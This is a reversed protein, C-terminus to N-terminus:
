DGEQSKEAQNDGNVRVAKIHWVSNVGPMDLISRRGKKEADSKSKARVSCFATQEDKGEIEVQATVRWLKDKIISNLTSKLTGTEYSFESM